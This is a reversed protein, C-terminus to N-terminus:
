RWLFWVWAAGELLGILEILLFIGVAGFVTKKM